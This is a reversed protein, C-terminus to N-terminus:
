ALEKELKEIEKLLEATEKYTIESVEKEAATRADEANKAKKDAVEQRKEAIEMNVKEREKEIRANLDTQIESIFKSLAEDLQRSQLDLDAKKENFKAEVAAAQSNQLNQYQNKMQSLATQKVQKIFDNM